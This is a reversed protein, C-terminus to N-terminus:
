SETAATEVEARGRMQWAWRPRQQRADGGGTKLKSGGESCTALDRKARGHLGIWLELRGAGPPRRRTYSRWSRAQLHASVVCPRPLGAQTAGFYSTAHVLGAIGLGDGGGGRCTVVM